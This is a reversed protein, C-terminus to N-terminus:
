TFHQVELSSWRELDWEVKQIKWASSPLIQNGEGAFSPDETNSKRGGELGVPETM